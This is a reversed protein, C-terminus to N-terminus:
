VTHTKTKTDWSCGRRRCLLRQVKWDLEGEKRCCFHTTAKGRRYSYNGEAQHGLHDPIWPAHSFCDATQLESGNQIWLMARLHLYLMHFNTINALAAAECAKGSAAKSANPGLQM